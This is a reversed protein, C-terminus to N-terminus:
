LVIRAGTIYVWTYIGNSVCHPSHDLRTEEQQAVDSYMVQMVHCRMKGVSNYRTWSTGGRMKALTFGKGEDGTRRGCLCPRTNIAIIIEIDRPIFEM